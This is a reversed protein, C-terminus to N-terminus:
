ENVHEMKLLRAKMRRIGLWAVLVVLPAALGTAYAAEIPLGHGELGKLLYGVLGVGYYGIAIVSLGEVTEQLRLQLQARRNMSELLSRNQEQLGVEVRARLLSTLRAAREALDQQRKSTSNCTAIAPALRADLFETFTQLGEIRKQRLQDLRQQVVGYYARSAEFRSSTRAAVAEIEAALTTLEALLEADPVGRGIGEPDTMRAAVGVLRRDAGSLIANAERAEPLGLLSMARYSNIELFRKALRGAQSDSLGQDRLLIRSFGDSHIRLDSWARAAGGVVECGIVANGAFLESLEEGGREPMDRAEFALSVAAVVEGPLESLWDQPLEYLVPYAFPHLYAGRKSFTYSVFETHREWRMRIDGLEAFYYQEVTAPLPLGYHELLKFLHRLNRGSGREGCIAAVHSIREPAHLSEYTRAHLEAVGQHRLPHEKFPLAM